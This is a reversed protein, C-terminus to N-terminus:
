VMMSRRRSAARESRGAGARAGKEKEKEKEVGEAAVGMGLKSLSESRSPIRSAETGTGEIGMKLGAVSSHRRVSKTKRLGTEAATATTDAPSSDRFEYLDLERMRKAAEEVGEGEGAGVGPSSSVADREKTAKRDGKAQSPSVAEVGADKGEGDGSGAGALGRWGSGGAGDEMKVVVTRIGVGEEGSERKRGSASGGAGASLGAGVRLGSIADVMEKGPRRMKTNLAPEAYNVAARARRSPRSGETPPPTGARGQPRTSDSPTPTPSFLDAAPTKPPLPHTLPLDHDTPHPPEISSIIPPQSATVPIPHLPASPKLNRSRPKTADRATTSPKKLPEKDPKESPRSPKKPSTNVSKDGLVRRQPPPAITIAESEADEELKIKVPVEDQEEGNAISEGKGSETAVKRSFRFEVAGASDDAERVSLKRKASTRVPQGQVGAEADEGFLSTRRLSLRTQGDKRKRRTELNVSLAASLEEEEGDAENGETGQPQPQPQPDFKIPDECEFHAVPPPGLDPSENSHDSLRLSRIESAELTRRPYYKDESITPLRLEQGTAEALPIRTRRETVSAKRPRDLSERRKREPQQQQLLGLEAVLHGFEALKEELRGKVTDLGTPPANSQAVLLETQLNNVQEQLNFNGALLRSVDSELSRIRLSQASNNKALERNQRIFRRKLADLSETPLPAENLRAM